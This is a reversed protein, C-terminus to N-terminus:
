NSLKEARDNSVISTFLFLKLVYHTDVMSLLTDLPRYTVVCLQMAIMISLEHLEGVLQYPSADTDTIEM